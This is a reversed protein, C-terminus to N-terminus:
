RLFYNFDNENAPQHGVPGGPALMIFSNKEAKSGGQSQYDRAVPAQVIFFNIVTMLELQYRWHYTITFLAKKGNTM